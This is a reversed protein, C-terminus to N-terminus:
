THQTVHFGTRATCTFTAVLALPARVEIHRLTGGSHIIDIHIDFHFPVESRRSVGLEHRGVPLCLLGPPRAPGPQKTHDPNTASHNYDSKSWCFTPLEGAGSQGGWTPGAVVTAPVQLLYCCLTLLVLSDQQIRTFINSTFGSGRLRPTM